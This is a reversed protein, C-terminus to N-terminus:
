SSLYSQFPDPVERGQPPLENLVDHEDGQLPREVLAGLSLAQIDFLTEARRQGLFGYSSVQACVIPQALSMVECFRMQLNLM